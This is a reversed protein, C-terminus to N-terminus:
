HFWLVTIDPDPSPLVRVNPNPAPLAQEGGRINAAIALVPTAQLPVAQVPAPPEFPEAVVPTPADFAVAQTARPADGTQAAPRRPARAAAPPVTAAVLPTPTPPQAAVVAESVPDVASVEPPESTPNRTAVMVMVIATAAALGVMWPRPMPRHAPTVLRAPLKVASALQSTDARLQAAVRRCRACGVLHRDVAGPHGPALEALEVSLMLSLADDCTM